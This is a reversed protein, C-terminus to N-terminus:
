GRMACLDYADHVYKSNKEKKLEENNLLIYNAPYWGRDNIAKKNSEVKFSNNWARHIIGIIDQKEV